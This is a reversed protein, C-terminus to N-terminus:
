GTRWADALSYPSSERVRSDDNGQGRHSEFLGIKRTSLDVCQRVPNDDRSSPSDLWGDVGFLYCTRIARISSNETGKGM